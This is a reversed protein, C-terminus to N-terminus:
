FLNNFFHEKHKKRSNKAALFLKEFDEMNSSVKKKKKLCSKSIKSPSIKRAPSPETYRVDNESIKTKIGKAPAWLIVGASTGLTREKDWNKTGNPDNTALTSGQGRLESKQAGVSSAWIQKTVNKPTVLRKGGDFINKAALKGCYLNQVLSGKNINCSEQYENGAGNQTKAEFPLNAISFNLSHNQLNKTSSNQLPDTKKSAHHVLKEYLVSTKPTQNSLISINFHSLNLKHPKLSPHPMEPNQLKPKPIRPKKPKSKLRKKSKKLRFINGPFNM